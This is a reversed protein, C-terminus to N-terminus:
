CIYFAQEVLDKREMAEGFMIGNVYCDGVLAYTPFNLEVQNVLKTCKRLVFPCRSGYLLCVIDGELTEPPCMGWSGDELRFLRQGRSCTRLTTFYNLMGFGSFLAESGHEQSKSLLLNLYEYCQKGDGLHEAMHKAMVPDPRAVLMSAFAYHLEDLQVPNEKPCLERVTRLWPLIISTLQLKEFVPMELMFSKEYGTTPGPLYQNYVETVYSFCRGQLPLIGFGVCFIQPPEEELICSSEGTANFGRTTAYGAGTSGYPFWPRKSVVESNWDPVWTPWTDSDLRMGPLRPYEKNRSGASSIISLPSPGSQHILTWTYIVWSEKRDLDLLSADMGLLGWLARHRDTNKSCSQVRCIEMVEIPNMCSVPRDLSLGCGRHLKWLGAVVAPNILSLSSTQYLLLIAEACDKWQLSMSGWYITAEPAFCVEQVIWLRSFWPSSFFSELQTKHGISIALGDNTLFKGFTRDALEEEQYDTKEFTSLKQLVKIALMKGGDREDEGLWIIARESCRYINWMVCVQFDLESKNGQDICLQDIWLFETPHSNILRRLLIMLSETIRLYGWGENYSCKLSKTKTDTGWTYSISLYPPAKNIPFQMFVGSLPDYYDRFKFLRIHTKPDQLAEPM